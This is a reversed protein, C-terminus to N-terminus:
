RGSLTRPSTWRPPMVDPEHGHLRTPTLSWSLPIMTVAIAVLLWIAPGFEGTADRVAGLVSPALAALLYGVLLMLAAAGGVQRPDHSLDTPLTLLLTFMLGLGAGLLIAWLVGPAPVLAVGLLGGTSLAAATTLMVRRSLGRRAGAPALVIAGLSALSVVSLLLAAAAPTWGLEIYVSALWATQGYYLWSQLGFLLAIAWVVGRRLPLAPRELRRPGATAVNPSPRHRVVLIWTALCLISLLSIALMAGRWGGLATALPVALAAGLAAGVITGGAYSSTGGVLQTPMRDRVFMAFIPGIVATGVGIGFTALLVLEAGPVLARLIGSVVLVAVSLAVGGRTGFRAAVPPGALAFLGMCCVPIATLLGVFAHSPGFEALVLPVLPGIASLQPRLALAVIFLALVVPTGAVAVAPAGLTSSATPAATPRAPDTTPSATM